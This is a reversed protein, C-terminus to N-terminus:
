RFLQLLEKRTSIILGVAKGNVYNKRCWLGAEKRGNKVEVRGGGDDKGEGSDLGEGATSPGELVELYKEFVRFMSVVDGGELAFGDRAAKGEKKSREDAGRYFFMNAVTFISAITLAAMGLGDKCGRYIMRVLKPEQQCKSIIKGLETTTCKNNGVQEIDIAGLYKLEEEAAALAEKSPASIWEFERPVIKMEILSLIALSLPKRFIEPASSNSMSLYDAESYLCHCEGPQTRGSRGARQTASSKSITTLKLTSINRKPDFMMEKRVGSDVVYVVGDITVSTEAVDTAFIIKRTNGELKEFVEGQEEPDQRGYLAFVKVFLTPEKKSHQLLRGLERELEEKASLVDEQGPLFCLIDGEAMGCSTHIVAARKVVERRISSLDGTASDGLPHYFKQIPFTRGEMEVTPANDFYASFEELDITASTVLILCDKWRPDAKKFSGLLIDCTVSREHAEDILICGVDRFPEESGSMIRELMVGETIFEIRSEKRIMKQGGVQYGVQHGPRAWRNGGSYEVSVRTALSIAAIKRPQTCVIRKNQFKPHDALYQPIQTSKGSGTQGQIILFRGSNPFSDIHAEIEARKALAPLRGNLRYIERQLEEELQSDSKMGWSQNNSRIREKLQHFVALQERMEKVHSRMAKLSGTQKEDWPNFQESSEMEDIEQILYHMDKEHEGIVKREKSLGEALKIRNRNSMMVNPSSLPVNQKYNKNLVKGTGSCFVPGGTNSSGSDSRIGKGYPSSVSSSMASSRSSIQPQQQVNGMMSGRGKKRQQFYSHPRNVSTQKKVGETSTPKSQQSTSSTSLPKIICNSSTEPLSTIRDLNDDDSSPLLDEELIIM